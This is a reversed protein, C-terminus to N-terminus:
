GTARAKENQYSRLISRLLGPFRGELERLRLRSSLEVGKRECRILGAERLIQFHQSCTSKPLVVQVRSMMEVCSMGGEAEMLECVIALRVPDALAHLIDTVGVEDIDPHRLPRTAMHVGATDHREGDFGTM